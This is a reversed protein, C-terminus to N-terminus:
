GSNMVAVVPVARGRTAMVTMFCADRARSLISLPTLVQPQDFRVLGARRLETDLEAPDAPLATKRWLEILEPDLSVNLKPESCM